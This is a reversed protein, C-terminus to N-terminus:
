RQCTTCNRRLLWMQTKNHTSAHTKIQVSDLELENSTQKIDCDPIPPCHGAEHVMLQMM